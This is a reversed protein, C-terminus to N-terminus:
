CDEDYDRWEQWESVDDLYEDDLTDRHYAGERDYTGDDFLDDTLLDENEM